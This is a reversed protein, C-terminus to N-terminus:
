KGVAPFIYSEVLTNSHTDSTGFKAHFSELSSMCSCWVKKLHPEEQGLQQQLQSTDCKLQEIQVLYAKEQSQKGSLQLDLASKEKELM